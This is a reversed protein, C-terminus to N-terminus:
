TRAMIEAIVATKAEAYDQLTPWPREALRRKTREYRARDAENARLRDRFAIMRQVEECGATFVHLNTSPERRKLLRHEFWDPERRALTYGIAELTPVYANEERSDDVVLDIDITPKAALGPVATSGVHEVGLAASGLAAEIERAANAFVGPWAPDYDQLHVLASLARV